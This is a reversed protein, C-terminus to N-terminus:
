EQPEEEYVMIEEFDIGNEIMEELDVLERLKVNLYFGEEILDYDFIKKEENQYSIFDKKNESDINIRIKKNEDKESFYIVLFSDKKEIVRGDIYSFLSKSHNEKIKEINVLNNNKKNNKTKEQYILGLLLLLGIFILTIVIILFIKDNRM